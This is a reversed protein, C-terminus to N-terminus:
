RGFLVQPHWRLGRSNSQRLVDIIHDFVDGFDLDILLELAGKKRCDLGPCERLIMDIISAKATHVARCLSDPGLVIECREFKDLWNSLGHEIAMTAIGTKNLEFIRSPVDILDPNGDNCAGELIRAVDKAGLPVTQEQITYIIGKTRTLGGCRLSNICQETLSVVVPSRSRSLRGTNECDPLVYLASRDKLVNRSADNRLAEDLGAYLDYRGAKVAKLAPTEGFISVSTTIIGPSHLLQRVYKM